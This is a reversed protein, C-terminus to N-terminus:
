GPGCKELKLRTDRRMDARQSLMRLSARPQKTESEGSLEPWEMKWLTGAVLIIQLQTMGKSLGKQPEGCAAFGHWM